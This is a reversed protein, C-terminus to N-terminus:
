GGERALTTPPPLLLLPTMGRTLVHVFLLSKWPSWFLFTTPAPVLVVGIPIGKLGFEEKESRDPYLNYGRFDVVGEWDWDCDETPLLLVTVSPPLLENVETLSISNLFM